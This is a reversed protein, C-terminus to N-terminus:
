GVSKQCRELMRLLTFAAAAPRYTKRFVSMAGAKLLEEDTRHNAHDVMFCCRLQPDLRRLAELTKLGDLGPMSAELLVLDIEGAHAQYVELAERGNRAQCVVFGRQQLWALLMTRSFPDLDVVLIRPNRVPKACTKAPNAPRGFQQRQFADTKQNSEWQLTVM